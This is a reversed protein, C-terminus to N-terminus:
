LAAGAGVIPASVAQQRTRQARSAAGARGVAFATSAAWCVADSRRLQPPHRLAGFAARWPAGGTPLPLEPRCAQAVAVSRGYHYQKRVHVLASPSLRYHVVAAPEFRLSKGALQARWCLDAEEAALLSEDWGGLDDLVAHRIGFNGSPFWPMPKRTMPNVDVVGWAGNSPNLRRLELSGGALDSDALGAALKEVWRRDVIDDADCYLLVDGGGMASGVNRAHSPGRVGGADVVVAGIPHQRAIEAGRDASGNDAVVVEFGTATQAALADLQAGITAAANYLPIVVSVAPTSNVAVCPLWRDSRGSARRAPKLEYSRSM